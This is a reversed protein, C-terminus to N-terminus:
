GWEMGVHAVGGDATQPQELAHGNPSASVLSSPSTACQASRTSDLRTHRCTVFYALILGCIRVRSDVIMKVSTLALSASDICRGPHPHPHTRNRTRSSKRKSLQMGCRAAHGTGTGTAIGTGTQRGRRLTRQRAVPFQFTCRLNREALPQVNLM